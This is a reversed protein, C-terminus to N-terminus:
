RWRPIILLQGGGWYLQPQSVSDQAPYPSPFTFDLTLQGDGSVPFSCCIYPNAWMQYFYDTEAVTNGQWTIRFKVWKANWFTTLPNVWTFCSFEVQAVGEKWGSTTVTTNTQWGGTFSDYSLGDFVYGSNGTVQYTSSMEVAESLTVAHFANGRIYTRTVWDDPTSTRDLGGNLTGKLQDYERNFGTASVINQDRAERATWKRAPM